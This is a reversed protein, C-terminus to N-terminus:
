QNSRWKTAAEEYNGDGNVVTRMTTNQIGLNNLNTFPVHRQSPSMDRHLAWTKTFPVHRQSPCTDKHLAWTKIACAKTFPEHRQSPCMHKSCSCSATYYAINTDSEGYRCNGRSPRWTMLYNINFSSMGQGLKENIERTVEEMTFETGAMGTIIINKDWDRQNYEDVCTKLNDIRTDREIRPRKHTDEKM